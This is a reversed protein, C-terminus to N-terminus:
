FYQSYRLTNRRQTYYTIFLLALALLLSTYFSLTPVTFTQAVSLQITIIGKEANLTDVAFYYDQGPQSHFCAQSYLQSDFNDNSTVETLSAIDNGTYIGLLTDVDSGMTDICIQAYTDATWTWWLSAGGVQAAHNPEHTEQTADINSVTDSLHMADLILADSFNDNIAGLAFFLDLRPKTVSNRTDTIQTNSQLLKQEIESTTANPYASRLLAAAASVHPAAQSTGAFSAGGATIIAGPALLSLYSASNSNCVIKDSFTTADQCNGLDLMGYNADYVSGVSIIGPTCAPASIGNSDANNGASSVVVIGANRASNVPTSYPNGLSCPNSFTTTGGLSINIAAINYTAQHSIAWNIGAIVDSSLISTGDSVDLAAIKADPATRAAIASVNTGHGNDDLSGDDNAIDIAVNVKCSAPVGPSTCSGLDSHTYDAGSDLVVITTNQGSVSLDLVPTQQILPLSQVLHYDLKEDPYISQISSHRLLKILNSTSHLRLAQMPLHSYTRLEDLDHTDLHNLLQEKIKKYHHIDTPLLSTQQSYYPINQQSNNTRATNYVIIVDLYDNPDSMMQRFKKSTKENLLQQIDSHAMLQEPKFESSALSHFLLIFVAIIHPLKTFYM